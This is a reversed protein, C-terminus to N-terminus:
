EGSGPICDFTRTEGKRAKAVWARGAADCREPRVYGPVNTMAAGHATMLQLVLVIDRIGDLANMM